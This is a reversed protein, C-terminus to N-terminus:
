LWNYSIRMKMEWWAQITHSEMKSKCYTHFWYNCYHPFNVSCVVSKTWITLVISIQGLISEPTLIPICIPCQPMCEAPALGLANSHNFLLFVEHDLTMLRMLPVLTKTTKRPWIQKLVQPRKKSVQVTPVRTIPLSETQTSHGTPINELMWFM